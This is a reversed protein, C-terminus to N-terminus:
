SLGLVGDVVWCGRVHVQKSDRCHNLVDENDCGADQLADALIPMLSFDRSEYMQRALSVVTDTLWSLSFSAPHFLNGFIDRLLRAQEACEAVRQSDQKSSTNAFANAACAAASVTGDYGSGSSASAGRAAAAAFQRQEIKPFGVSRWADHLKGRSIEEDAFAEAADVARIGAETM